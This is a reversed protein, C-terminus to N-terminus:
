LKSHLPLSLSLSFHLCCSAHLHLYPLTRVPLPLLDCVAGIAVGGSLTANQVIEMSFKGKGVIHSVLFAAMTSGALSVVTNVVAMAQADAPALASNFSPWYVWIFLTGVMAFLDHDYSSRNNHYGFRESEQSPSLMFTLGAGFAAGFVHVVISGGADLLGLALALAMNISFLVTELVVVVLMQAPAVKGLVAGFSIMAAAAAFLAELLSYVSLNIPVFNRGALLNHAAGNTLLGVQVAVVSLIFNFSCPTLPPRSPVIPNLRM